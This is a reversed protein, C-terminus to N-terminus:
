QFLAIYPVAKLRRGGLTQIYFLLSQQLQRFVAAIAKISSHNFWYM